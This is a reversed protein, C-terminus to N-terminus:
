RCRDVASRDLRQGRLIQHDGAEHGVHRRIESAAAYRHRRQAIAGPDLALDIQRHAVAQRDHRRRRRDLSHMQRGSYSTSTASSGTPSRRHLQERRRRCPARSAGPPPRVDLVDARMERAVIARAASARRSAKDRPPSQSRSQPRRAGAYSDPVANRGELAPPFDSGLRRPRPRPRPTRIQHAAPLRSAPAFTRRRTRLCPSTLSRPLCKSARLRGLRNGCAPLWRPRPTRGACARVRTAAPAAQSAAEQAVSRPLVRAGGGARVPRDDPERRRGRRPQRHSRQHSQRADILRLLSGVGPAHVDIALFDRDPQLAAIAATTEGM